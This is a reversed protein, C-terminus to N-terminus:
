QQMLIRSYQDLELVILSTNGGISIMVRKISVVKEKSPLGLYLYEKFKNMLDQDKIYAAGGEGAVLLKM